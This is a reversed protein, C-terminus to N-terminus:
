KKEYAGSEKSAKKGRQKGDLYAEIPRWGFSTSKAAVHVVGTVLKKGILSFAMAIGIFPLFAAYLLGVFPGVALVLASKMKIYRADRDGPLLGEVALDVRQGDMINWYTGKAAKYGGRHMLM